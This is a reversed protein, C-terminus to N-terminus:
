LVGFWLNSWLIFILLIQFYESLSFHVCLCQIFVKISHSTDRGELISWSNVHLTELFLVIVMPLMLIILSSELCRIAVVHHGRWSASATQTTSSCYVSTVWPFWAKFRCFWRFYEITDTRLARLRSAQFITLYDAKCIQVNRVLVTKLLLVPLFDVELISVLRLGNMLKICSSRAVLAITLTLSPM